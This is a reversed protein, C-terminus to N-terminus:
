FLGRVMEFGMSRLWEKLRKAGHFNINAMKIDKGSLLEVTAIGEGEM